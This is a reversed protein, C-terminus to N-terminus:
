KAFSVPERFVFREKLPRNKDMKYHYGKLQIDSNQTLTSSASLRDDVRCASYIDMESLRVSMVDLLCPQSQRSANQELTSELTDDTTCYISSTM